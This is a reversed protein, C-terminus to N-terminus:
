ASFNGTSGKTYYDSKRELRLATSDAWARSDKVFLNELECYRVEHGRAQCELM